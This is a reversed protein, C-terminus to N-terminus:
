DSPTEEMITPNATLNVSGTEPRRHTCARLGDALLRRAEDRGTTRRRKGAMYCDGAHVQVPPRGTGIGLEVM